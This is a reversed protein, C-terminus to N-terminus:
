VGHVVLVVVVWVGPGGPVVAAGAQEPLQMNMAICSVPFGDCAKQIRM